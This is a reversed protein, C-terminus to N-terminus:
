KLKEKENKNIPIAILPGWLVQKTPFPPALSHACNEGSPPFPSSRVKRRRACPSGKDPADTVCFLGSM